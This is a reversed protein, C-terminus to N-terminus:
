QSDGRQDTVSELRAAEAEFEDAVELLAERFRSDASASAMDRFVKASDRLERPSRLAM